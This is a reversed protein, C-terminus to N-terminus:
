LAKAVMVAKIHDPFKTVTKEGSASTVVVESSWKAVTIRNGNVIRNIKM